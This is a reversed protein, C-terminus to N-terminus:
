ARRRRFPVVASLLALFGASPEPVAAIANQAFATSPFVPGPQFAWSDWDGDSLQRGTMGTGAATWSGGSFPNGTSVGYHWWGGGAAFPGERYLDGTDTATAFASPDTSFGQGNFITADSIGFIDNGNADYGIGNAFVGFGGAPPLSNVKAFLRDDSGFVSFFMDEGTASGDWRFGWAISNDTGSTGDWDLVFGARNAGNGFWIQIDDFDTVVGGLVPSSPCVLLLLVLKLYKM